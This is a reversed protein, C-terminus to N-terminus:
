SPNYAFADLRITEYQREKAFELAFQMLERAFGKGQYSPEIALRHVVLAKGGFQWNMEQYAPEQFENLTIIGCLRSDQELLYLEHLGIDRQVNAEDPYIDDWQNIGQSEMHCVCSRILKMIEYVDQSSALRIKM